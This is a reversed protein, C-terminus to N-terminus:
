IEVPVGVSEALPELAELHQRALIETPAMIAAQGGAEVAALMALFAVLTKGAGVDGQLLRYMKIQSEMDATIESVARIQASTMKYPLATIARKRLNGDGKSIIGKSKKVQARAIALTFQHSLLEDYALRLRAPANPTTDQFNQPTHAAAIAERWSPWGHKQIVSADIWEALEPARELASRTARYMTKQTIGATLPYVPEFGPLEDAQDVELIHDPHVMQALGDFLEVRGSVIKKSGSPLTRRLWDDRAHFFVLQFDDQSDSVTIRYPGGKRSPPFHQGVTISVTAVDPFVMGKLSDRLQRDIGGTPLTFLVDKVKTTGIKELLQALKPGIGDLVPVDAFLPFLIEPRTNKM